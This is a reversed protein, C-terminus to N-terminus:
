KEAEKSEKATSKSKKGAPKKEAEPKETRGATRALNEVPAPEAPKIEASIREQAATGAGAGQAGTAKGEMKIAEELKEKLGGADAKAAEAAKEKEKEQKKEKVKLKKKRKAEQKKKRELKRAEFKLKLKAIAAGIDKVNVFDLSSKRAAELLQLRKRTGVARALIAVSGKEKSLKEIDALTSVVAASRGDRTLGRVAAPGGYGVAVMKTKGAKRLRLKSQIGMPKRWNTKLKKRCHSEQRRFNPTRKKLLRRQELLRKTDTM